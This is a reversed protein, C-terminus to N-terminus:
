AGGDGYDVVLTQGAGLDEGCANWLDRIFLDFLENFEGPARIPYRPFALNGDIEGLSRTPKSDLRLARLKGPPGIIGVELAYETDPAGAAVRFLHAKVAANVVLALLLNTEVGEEQRGERPGFTYDLAIGGDCYIETSFTLNDHDYSLQSGRLIARLTGRVYHDGITFPDNGLRASFPRCEFDLADNRHVRDIYLDGSTPFAAARLGFARDYGRSRVAQCREVARSHMGSFRLNVAELGRHRNLTLDQIERMTMKETRDARRIYCEKTGRIDDLRHPALRSEPVRVIVVGNGGDDVPLGVSNIIPLQPRICDRAQLRFKEALDACRQVPVIKSASAPKSETEEIGLLLHGGHANAFGVVEKLIKNRAENGMQNEGREWPDGGPKSSPLSRKFEIQDNEPVQERILWELDEHGIQDLAKGFLNM